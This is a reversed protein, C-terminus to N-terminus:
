HIKQGNHVFYYHKGYGMPKFNKLLIKRITKKSKVVKCWEHISNTTIKKDPFLLMFEEVSRLVASSLSEERRCKRCTLSDGKCVELFSSCCSSVIGKELLEFSYESLRTYPSDKLHVSLLQEALKYDDATPSSTKM